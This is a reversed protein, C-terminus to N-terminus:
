NDYPVTGHDVSVIWTGQIFMAAMANCTEHTDTDSIAERYSRIRIRRGRLIALPPLLAHSARLRRPLVRFGRGHLDAAQLPETDM